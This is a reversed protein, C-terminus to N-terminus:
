APSCRCRRGSSGVLGRDIGRFGRPAVGTVTYSLGNIVVKRGLISPDAGFRRRWLGDSLVLLPVPSDMRTEDERFGRGLQLPVGLMDFYAHDVLQGV